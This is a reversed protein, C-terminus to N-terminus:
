IEELFYEWKYIDKFPFHKGKIFIFSTKNEVYYKEQTETKIIKDDTSIFARDIHISGGIKNKEFYKLEECLTELTRNTTFKEIGSKLYFINLNDENLKKYTLVIIRRDLLNKQMLEPIGNLAITKIKKKELSKINEKIFNAMYSVGFSWGIFFIRRYKKLINIHFNYPFSLNLFDCNDPIQMHSIIKDDMGWGNFFIIINM